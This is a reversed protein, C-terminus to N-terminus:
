PLPDSMIEKLEPVNIFVEIKDKHNFINGTASFTFYEEIFEKLLAEEKKLDSIASSITKRDSELSDHESLINNKASGKNEKIKTKKGLYRDAFIRVGSSDLPKRNEQSNLIIVCLYLVGIKDASIHKDNFHINWSKDGREFIIQPLLKKQEDTKASISNVLYSLYYWFGANDKLDAYKIESLESIAKCLTELSEAKPILEKLLNNNFSGLIRKNDNYTGNEILLGLFIATLSKEYARNDPMEMDKYYYFYQPKVYRIAQVIRYHSEELEELKDYLYKYDDTKELQDFHFVAISEEKNAIEKLAGPLYYYRHKLNILMKAIVRKIVFIDKGYIHIKRIKRRRFEFIWDIIEKSFYNLIEENLFSSEEREQKIVQPKINELKKKIQFYKRHDIFIYGKPSIGKLSIKDSFLKVNHSSLMKM